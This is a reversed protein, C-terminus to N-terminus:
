GHTKVEQYMQLAERLQAAVQKRLVAPRLVECASGFSMIWRKIELFHSVQVTLTLSGDVEEQIKQSPHWVKERVYRAAEPRFQLCVTHPQGTGRIRSWANKLYDTISFDAPRAFTKGTQESERIRHLAFMRMDDRLHCYGVLYWDGDFSLLQYPDIVRYRTRNRSAAWYRIRLQRGQLVANHMEQFHRTESAGQGAVQFSYVQGLHDLDIAITDPLFRTVKQFLSAICPAFPTNRYQQLLREALFLAVCEGDTIRVLPLAFSPDTYYYGYRQPDYLVPAHLRDRLFEVDRHITRPHVELIEALTSANPRDGKRIECDIRALRELPPRAVFKM